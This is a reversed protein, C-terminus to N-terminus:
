APALGPGSVALQTQPTLTTGTRLNLPASDARWDVRQVPVRDKFFLYFGEPVPERVAPLDKWCYGPTQTLGNLVPERTSSHVDAMLDWGDAWGAARTLDEMRAPQRDRKARQMEALLAVSSGLPERLETLDFEGACSQTSSDHSVVSCAGAMPVILAILALRMIKM